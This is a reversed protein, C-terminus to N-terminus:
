ARAEEVSEELGVLKIQGDDGEILAELRGQARDLIATCTRVLANGEEFLAIAEELPVDGQDMRAVIQELRALAAEFTIGESAVGM